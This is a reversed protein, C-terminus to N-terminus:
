GRGAEGWKKRLALLYIVMATGAFFFWQMAYSLHNNPVDQPDPAALQALGAQPPAAVLRAGDTGPAVFGAVEGGNWVADASDQSWGLAIEASGGGDLECTAVHAWGSDGEASRGAVADMAIVRDCIVRSHRYLAQEIEAADRPWPVDASMAQAAQYRAILGEKAQRRELQWIGLAIMVSVAAAVILTPLLPLKRTM